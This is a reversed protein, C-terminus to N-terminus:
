VGVTLTLLWINKCFSMKSTVPISMSWWRPFQVSFNLLSIACALIKEVGRVTSTGNCVLDVLNTSQAHFPLYVFFCFVLTPSVCLAQNYLALSAPHSLTHFLTFLSSFTGPPGNPATRLAQSMQSSWHEESLSEGRIWEELPTLLCM